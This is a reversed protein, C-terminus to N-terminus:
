YKAGSQAFGALRVEADIAAGILQDYNFLHRPPRHWGSAVRSSAVIREAILPPQVALCASPPSDAAYCIL